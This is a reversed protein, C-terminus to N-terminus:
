GEYITIPEEFIPLLPIDGPRLAEKHFIPIGAQVFAAQVFESCFWEQANLSVRGL